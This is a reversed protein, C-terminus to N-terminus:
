AAPVHAVLAAQTRGVAGPLQDVADGLAEGQAGLRAGLVGQIQDPRPTPISHKARGGAGSPRMGFDCGEGGYNLPYFPRRRLALYLNSEQRLCWVGAENPALM